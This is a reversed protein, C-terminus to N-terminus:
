TRGYMWEYCARQMHELTMDPLDVPYERYVDGARWVTLKYGGEGRSVVFTRFTDENPPVVPAAEPAETKNNFQITAMAGM